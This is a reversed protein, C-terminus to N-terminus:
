TRVQTSAVESRCLLSWLTDSEQDWSKKCKSTNWDIPDVVAHRSSFFNIPIATLAELFFIAISTPFPLKQRPKRETSPAYSIIYPSHLIRNVRLASDRIVLISTQHKSIKSNSFFFSFFFCIYINKFKGVLM